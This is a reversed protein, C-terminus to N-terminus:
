IFTWGLLRQLIIQSWRETSFKQDRLDKQEIVEIGRESLVKVRFGNRKLFIVLSSICSSKGAKPTGCFEIIIPRRPRVERKAKLLTEAMEELKTITEHIEAETQM